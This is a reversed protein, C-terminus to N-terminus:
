SNFHDVVSQIDNLDIDVDTGFTTRLGVTMKLRNFEQASISSDESESFMLGDEFQTEDPVVSPEFLRLQEKINDQIMARVNATNYQWLYKKLGVGFLPENYLETPNSLILLRSRNVVSINDEAINICNRALDILNPFMWSNTKSM